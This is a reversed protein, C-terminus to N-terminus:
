KKIPIALRCIFNEPEIHMGNNPTAIIVVRLKDDAAKYGRKEFEDWLLNLANIYEGSQEHHGYYLISLARCGPILEICDDKEGAWENLDLPICMKIRYPESDNRNGPQYRILFIKELSNIPYGMSFVKNYMQFALRNTEVPSTISQETCYCVLDPFETESIEHNKEVSLRLSIEEAGRQLIAIRSEIEDLIPQLNVVGANFITLINKQPLGINRLLRYQILDMINYLDYYRYGSRTNIMKPTILGMTELKIVMTRSLGTVDCVQKITYYGDTEAIDNKMGEITNEQNEM